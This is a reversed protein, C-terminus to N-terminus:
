VVVAPGPCLFDEPVDNSLVARGTLAADIRAAPYVFAEGVKPSM